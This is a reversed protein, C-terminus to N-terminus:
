VSWCVDGSCWNETFLVVSSRISFLFPSKYCLILHSPRALCRASRYKELLYYLPSFVCARSFSWGGGEGVIRSSFYDILPIGYFM